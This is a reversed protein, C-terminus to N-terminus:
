NHSTTSNEFRKFFALLLFTRLFHIFSLGLFMSIYIGFVFLYNSLLMLVFPLCFALMLLSSSFPYNIALKLTNLSAQKLSDDYRSLYFFIFQMYNIVILTVIAVGITMWSDLQNFTALYLWNTILISSILLIGLWAITSQKFRKKFVELYTSVIRTEGQTIIRTTVAFAAAQSAGITVIPLSTIIMLLNLVMLSWVKMMIRYFTGNLRFLEQM